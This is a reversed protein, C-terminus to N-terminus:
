QLTIYWSRNCWLFGLTICLYKIYYLMIYYVIIYYLMIYYVIIYYLM